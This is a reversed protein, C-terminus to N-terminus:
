ELEVAGVDPAGAYYSAADFPLAGAPVVGANVLASGAALAFPAFNLSGDANRTPKANALSSAFDSAAVVINKAAIRAQAKSEDWWANTGADTGIAKDSQTGSTTTWFSLNNTFVADTPTSNDGFKFNGEVNDFALNNSLAIAGPNSNWTFGNKGNKFAISRTVVHPVAIDDGGLKFGNRDGNDNTTGNTLTGNAYAICQDITVPGIPGTETKTYLDWGDDINNHSVCGRFTNGPGVTLKAAFGDANEGSGPPADYNDYSECDVILNNSPWTAPDADDSSKRGIQLGTDRNDHVVCREVVNHNGAVYIGNDAAGLVELGRLHWFDGNIQLGRPNSGDGYPESSFDLVPKEDGYAVLWKPHEADGGNDAAITLQAASAYSGGRAFITHGATIRTLAAGLTTPKELTGPADATGDPAAVLDLSGPDTPGSGAAGGTTASAGANDNSGAHGAAGGGAMAGAGGGGSAGSSSPGTGGAGAPTGDGGAGQAKAGGSASSGGTGGKGATGSSGGAPAAGSGANSPPGAHSGASAGATGGRGAGDADPTGVTDSSGAGSSCAVVARLISLAIGSFLTNRVLSPERM